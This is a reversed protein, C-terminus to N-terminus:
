KRRNHAAGSGAFGRVSSCTMPRRKTGFPENRRLSIRDSTRAIAAVVFASRLSSMEAILSHSFARCRCSEGRLTLAERGRRGGQHLKGTKTRTLRPRNGIASLAERGQAHRRDAPEGSHTAQGGLLSSMRGYDASYIISRGERRSTVLGAHGLINLNGSLTRPVHGTARAIAGAAMGKTGGRVLLRFVELRGSHALASLTAVAATADM